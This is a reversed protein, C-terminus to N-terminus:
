GKLADVEAKQRAQLAVFERNLKIDDDMLKAQQRAHAAYVADVKERFMADRQKKLERVSVGKENIAQDYWQDCQGRAAHCM